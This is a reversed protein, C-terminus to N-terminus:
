APRRKPAGMLCKSFSAIVTVGMAKAPPICLLLSVLVTILNDGSEVSWVKLTFFDNQKPYPRTM